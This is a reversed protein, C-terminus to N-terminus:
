GFLELVPNGLSAPRTFGDPSLRTAPDIGLAHLLMATFDELSVPRDKVYAAQDDSAGYVAGGRIGAGALLASYCHPWHDRGIAKAGKSIRPTRGFEGIAVVLTSDLLGRDDLDSLLSAIAQDARPLAWGLGNWGNEFIGIGANGHMDWTEVSMFKEGPALGTWAVVSTLRVGAEILRRALLLNQGFPNRGYRDRVSEPEQTIDFARRATEGHLLDFAREQSTQMSRHAASGAQGPSNELKKLLQWRADLRELSVQEATDFAKVRFGETAPNDDHAHGIVLPAYSMGLFGGTLYSPDPPASGGGFKQLWVYPPVNETVPRLKAVISGFAPADPEPLGSGALLMRNAIDHVPVTHTMSRIIAYLNSMQALRPMLEGVQFGPTVTPIPAYPGRITDPAEPKLDFSDLQSLGGYLHIFVCSKPNNARREAALLEPLTLGVGGLCGAWLLKRRSMRPVSFRSGPVDSTKSIETM